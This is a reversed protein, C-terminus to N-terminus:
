LIRRDRNLRIFGSVYGVYPSFIEYEDGSNRKRRRRKEKNQSKVKSFFFKLLTALKAMQKKRKARYLMSQNIYSQSNASM